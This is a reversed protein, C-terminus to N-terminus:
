LGGQWMVPITSAASVTQKSMWKAHGDFFAYNAGGNHRDAVAEVSTGSYRIYQGSTIDAAMITEAPYQFTATSRYAYLYNGDVCITRNTGYSGTWFLPRTGDIAFKNTASPCTFLQTNKVYPTLMTIWTYWSTTMNAPYTAVAGTMEDYDQEYSLEALAIQKLNALCSSQRAKERAKAFVPFM